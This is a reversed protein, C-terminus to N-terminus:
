HFAARELIVNGGRRRFRQFENERSRQQQTQNARVREIRPTDVENEIVRSCLESMGIRSKENETGQYEDTSNAHSM